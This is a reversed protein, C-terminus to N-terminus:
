EVIGVPEFPSYFLRVHWGTLALRRLRGMSTAPLAGGKSACSACDNMMYRSFYVCVDNSSRPCRAANKRSNMMGSGQAAAAKQSKRHVLSM